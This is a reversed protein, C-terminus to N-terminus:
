GNDDKAPQLLKIAQEYHEVGKKYMGANCFEFGARREKIAEKYNPSNANANLADQLASGTKTCTVRTAAEAANASMVGLALCAGTVLAISKFNVM